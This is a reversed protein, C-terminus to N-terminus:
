PGPPPNHEVPLWGPDDFYRPYLDLTDLLEALGDAALVRALLTHLNADIGASRPPHEVIAAVSDEISASAARSQRASLPGNAQTSQMWLAVARIRRMGERLAVDAPWRQGHDLQLQRLGTARPQHADGTTAQARSPSWGAIAAFMLPALLVVRLYRFRTREAAVDAMTKPRFTTPVEAHTTTCRRTVRGDVVNRPTAEHTAMRRAHQRRRPLTATTLDPPAAGYPPEQFRIQDTASPRHWQMVKQEADDCM